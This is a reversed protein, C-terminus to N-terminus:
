REAKVRFHFTGSVPKDASGDEPVLRAKFAYRGKINYLDYSGESGTKEISTIETYEDQSNGENSVLRGYETSLKDESLPLKMAMEFFDGPTAVDSVGYKKINSPQALMASKRPYAFYFTVLTSASTGSIMFTNDGLATPPMELHTCDIHRQWDPTKFAIHLSNAIPASGPDDNNDPSPDNSKGCSAILLGLGLLLPLIKTKM